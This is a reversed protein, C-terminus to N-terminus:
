LGVCATCKNFAPFFVTFLQALFNKIGYIASFQRCRSDVSGCGRQTGQRRSGTWKAQGHLFSGRRALELDCQNDAAVTMAAMELLIVIVCVLAMKYCCM